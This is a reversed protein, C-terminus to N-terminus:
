LHLSKLVQDIEKDPLTDIGPLVDIKMAMKFRYLESASIFLLLIILFIYAKGTIALWMSSRSHNVAIAKSSSRKHKM